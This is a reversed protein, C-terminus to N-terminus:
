NNFVLQLRQTRPQGTPEFRWQKLADVVYSEVPRMGATLVSAEGVTGDARVSIQVTLERFEPVRRLASAPIDPPVM